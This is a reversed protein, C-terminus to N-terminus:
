LALEELSGWSEGVRVKVTLPVRLQLRDGVGELTRKLKPVVARLAGRAVSFVLEDHVAMHLCFPRVPLYPMYTHGEQHVAQLAHHLIHAAGGQVALALAQQQRAYSNGENSLHRMGLMTHVRKHHLAEVRVRSLYAGMVPFWENTFRSMLEQATVAGNFLQPHNKLLDRIGLDVKRTGMGYIIGYVVLKVCSRQSATVVEGEPISLIQRTIFSLVDEKAHFAAMLKPDESLHALVRLEVQNFDLSVFVAGPPPVYLDRLTLHPKDPILLNLHLRTAQASEEEAQHQTTRVFEACLFDPMPHDVSLPHRETTQVSPTSAFIRGSTAGHLQWHPHVVYVLELPPRSTSTHPVAPRVSRQPVAQVSLAGKFYTVLRHRYQRREDYALWVLAFQKEDERNAGLVKVALQVASKATSSRLRDQAKGDRSAQSSSPPEQLRAGILRAVSVASLSDFGSSADEEADSKRELWQQGWEQLLKLQNDLSLLFSDFCSRSVHIGHARMLEGAMGVFSRLCSVELLTGHEGAADGERPQLYTTYFASLVKLAHFSKVAAIELLLSDEATLPSPQKSSTTGSRGQGDVSEVVDEGRRRSRPPSSSSERGTALLQKVRAVSAEESETEDERSVGRSSSSGKGRLDTTSHDVGEDELSERVEGGDSSYSCGCGPLSSSSSLGGAAPVGSEAAASGQLGAHRLQLHLKEQEVVHAIHAQQEESLMAFMGEVGGRDTGSGEVVTELSRKAKLSSCGSVMQAETTVDLVRVASVRETGLFLFLLRFVLPAHCVVKTLQSSLFLEALLPLALEKTYLYLRPPQNRNNDSEDNMFLFLKVSDLLQTPSVASSASPSNTPASVSALLQEFQAKHRVLSIGGVLEVDVMVVTGLQGALLPEITYLGRELQLHSSAPSISATSPENKGLQPPSVQRRAPAEAPPKPEVVLEVSSVDSDSADSVTLTSHLNSSSTLPTSKPAPAPSADCGDEDLATCLWQMVTSHKSLSKKMADKTDSGRWGEGRKRNPQKRDKGKPCNASSLSFLVSTSLYVSICVTICSFVGSM